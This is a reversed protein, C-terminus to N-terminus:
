ESLLPPPNFFTANLRKTQSNQLVEKKLQSEYATNFPQLCELENMNSQQGCVFLCVSMSVFLAIV